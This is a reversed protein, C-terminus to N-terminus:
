APRAELVVWFETSRGQAGDDDAVAATVRLVQALGSTAADAIVVGSAFDPHAAWLESLTGAFLEREASFGTCDGDGGGTGLTFTVAVYRDLGSGGSAQGHLRVSADITGTYAISVCNEVLRGPYLADVDFLLEQQQGGSNAQVDLDIQGTAFLSSRNETTAAVRGKTTSIAALGLVLAALCIAV